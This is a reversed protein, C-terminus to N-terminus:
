FVKMFPFASSPVVSVTWRQSDEPRCQLFRLGSSTTDDTEAAGMDYLGLGWPNDYYFVFEARQNAHELSTFSSNFVKDPPGDYSHWRDKDYGCSTWVTYRLKRNESLNQKPPNQVFTPFSDRRLYDEIEHKYSWEPRDGCFNHLSSLVDFDPSPMASVTYTQRYDDETMLFRFENNVLQDDKTYVDDKEEKWPNDYYFLYEVRLNAEKLSEFSSDFEAPERMDCKPHTEKTWVTFKKRNNEDTHAKSPEKINKTFRLLDKQHALEREEEEKRWCAEEERRQKEWQRRRELLIESRRKDIDLLKQTRKQEPLSEIDFCAKCIDYDRPESSRYPRKSCVLPHDVDCTATDVRKRKDYPGFNRPIRLLRSDALPYPFFSVSHFHLAKAEADAKVGLLPTGDGLEAILWSKNKGSVGTIKPNRYKIEDILQAVTMSKSVVSPDVEPKQRAPAKTKKTAGVITSSAVRAPSVQQQPTESSASSLSAASPPARLVQSSEVKGPSLVNQKPGVPPKGTSKKAVPKSGDARPKNAKAGVLKPLAESKAQVPYVSSSSVKVPQVANSSASAYPAVHKLTASSAHIPTSETRQSQISTAKEKKSKKAPPPKSAANTASTSTVSGTTWISGVGVAALLEDKSKSGLGKIEPMRTMIEHILQGKTLANTVVPANAITTANMSPSTTWVSNDGLKSLFWPKTKSSLGTVSPDRMQLEHSLQVITLKSTIRPAESWNVSDSPPQRKKPTPVKKKTDKKIAAAKAKPKEDVKRSTTPAPSKKAKAPTSTKGIASSPHSLWVTGVGLQDLLWTKNQGSFGKIGRHRCEDQLQSVTMTDSIQMRSAQEANGRQASSKKKSKEPSSSSSSSPLPSANAGAWKKLKASLKTCYWLKVTADWRAGNAKAVDKDKKPVNLFIRGNPTWQNFSAIQNYLEVPVYWSREGSHWKAGLSKADDKEEYPCDLLYM